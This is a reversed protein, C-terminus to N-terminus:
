LGLGNAPNSSGSNGGRRGFLHLGHGRTVSSYRRTSAFSNVSRRADRQSQVVQKNDLSAVYRRGMVHGGKAFSATSIGVVLLICILTKM